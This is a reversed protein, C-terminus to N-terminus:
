EIGSQRAHQMHIEISMVAIADLGSKRVVRAHGQHRKV